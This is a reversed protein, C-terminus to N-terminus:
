DKAIASALSKVFDLVDEALGDRPRGAEDVGQAIKDVVASGVVAADALGAVEAAQEPTKIGFGVAVPLKTHRRLRTMASKIADASASTTGTVGLISVYYVFGGADKLVTPLRKDDTTPTTLFILDIGHAKLHPLLEGAEEPPLDVVIVGDVGAEAADRAFLNPGYSYIPNYYGMLVLPTGHDAQRFERVIELTGSLSGGAKLARQSGAQIAPGDAMPDSFPMGLEIIDAGAAPLGRVIELSVERNPDDACVYVVLGGREQKKLEAFTRKFREAM